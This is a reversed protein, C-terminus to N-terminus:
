RKSWTTSLTPFVLNKTCRRHLASAHHALWTCMAQEMAHGEIEQLWGMESEESSGECVNGGEMAGWKSRHDCLPGCRKGLVLRPWVM